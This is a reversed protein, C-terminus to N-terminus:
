FQRFKPSPFCIIKRLFDLFSIEGYEREYDSLAVDFILGNRVNINLQVYKSITIMMLKKKRMGILINAQVM